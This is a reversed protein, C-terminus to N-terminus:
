KLGIRSFDGIRCYNIIRDELVTKFAFLVKIRLTTQGKSIPDLKSQHTQTSLNSTGIKSTRGRRLPNGTTDLVINAACVLEAKNRDFGVSQRFMGLKQFKELIFEKLKLIQLDTLIHLLCLLLFVIQWADLISNALILQSVM